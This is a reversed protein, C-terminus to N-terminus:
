RQRAGEARRNGRAAEEPGVVIAFPIGLQDAYRFQKAMKSPEPYLEVDIGAAACGCRPAFRPSRCNPRFITVLARAPAPRVAPIRGYKDLVLSVVVDGMAFGVGPVPDGGVDAVLNDYRGGGLIARFEGDADRAEFVTGTYYDLGRIVSPEYRVLERGGYAELIEFLQM